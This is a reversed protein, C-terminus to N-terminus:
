NVPADADVETQDVRITEKPDPLLQKRAWEKLDQVDKYHLAPAPSDKYIVLELHKWLYENESPHIFKTLEALTMLKPGEATAVRYCPRPDETRKGLKELPKVGLVEIRLVPTKVTSAPEEEKDKEKYVKTSASSKDNGGNKGSSNDSGFGWGGTGGIGTGGGGMVWLTVLWGVMVGGLFRVILLPIRPLNQGSALRVLGQVLLGIAIAGVVFGGIIALIKEVLGVVAFLALSNWVSM